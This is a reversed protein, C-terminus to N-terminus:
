VTTPMEEQSEMVKLIEQLKKAVGAGRTNSNPDVIKVEDIGMEKLTKGHKKILKKEMDCASCTKPNGIVLLVTKDKKQGM